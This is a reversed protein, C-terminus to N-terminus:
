AAVFRPKFSEIAAKLRGTLADDLTKKTKIDNLLDAHSADLFTIFDREWKRVQPVPVDDLFGNTTAYIIAVQKEVPVPQYQPQKLIEVLRAGRNLQRLTAADLRPSPTPKM